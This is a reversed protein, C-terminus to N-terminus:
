NEPFYKRTELFGQSKFYYYTSNFEWNKPFYLIMGSIGRTLLVRYANKIYDMGYGILRTDLDYNWEENYFLYDYNWQVIPIDFELGLIQFQTLPHKVLFDISNPQKTMYFKEINIKHANEYRIPFGKFDDFDFTPTGILANSKSKHFNLAKICEKINRSIYLKFGQSFCLKLSQKIKKSHPNEIIDNIVISYKEQCNTRISNSLYLENIKETTFKHNGLLLKDPHFIKLTDKKIKIKEIAEIWKDFNNTESSALQQNIGIFIVTSSWKKENNLHNLLIQHESITANYYLEIRYEDWVRQAEDILYVNNSEQNRGSLYEKIISTSSYLNVRHKLRNYLLSIIKGNKSIFSGNYLKSLKLAIATKGSGAEGLVFILSHIQSKKSENIIAKIKKLAEESEELIPNKIGILYKDIYISEAFRIIDLNPKFIGKQFDLVNSESSSAKSTLTKWKEIFTAKSMLLMNGWKEYFSHTSNYLLVPTIKYNASESHYYKFFNVYDLLQSFDCDSHNSRNKFEIIYLRKRVFMLVDPRKGDSLPIEYEFLFNINDLFKIKSLEIFIDYTVEWACIQSKDPEKLNLKAILLTIFEEKSIELLQNSTIKM